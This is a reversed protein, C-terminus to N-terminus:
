CKNPVSSSFICVTPLPNRGRATPKMRGGIAGITGFANYTNAGGLNGGAFANPNWSQTGGMPYYETGNQMGSNMRDFRSSDYRPTSDDSYGASNPMQGYVDNFHRSPQRNLTQQQHRQSGPSRQGVQDYFMDQHHNNMNFDHRSPSGLSNQAQFRSASPFLPPLFSSPSGQLAEPRTPPYKKAALLPRHLDSPEGKATRVSALDHVRSM